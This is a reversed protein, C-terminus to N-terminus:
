ADDGEVGGEAPARVAGEGRAQGGAIGLCPGDGADQAVQPRVHQQDVLEVVGGAARGQRAEAPVVEGAGVDRLRRQDQGVDERCRHVGADGGAQVQVAVPAAVAGGIGQAETCEGALVPHRQEGTM